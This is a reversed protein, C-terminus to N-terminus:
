KREAQEAPLEQAAAPEDRTARATMGTADADDMMQEDPAPAEEAPVDALATNSDPTEVVPAPSGAEAPAPTLDEAPPPTATRDEKEVPPSESGASCAALGAVSMAAAFMRLQKRM